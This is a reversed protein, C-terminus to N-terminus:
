QTTGTLFVQTAKGGYIRYLAFQRTNQHRLEFLLSARNTADADVVDVMRLRPTRDLHTEDTLSRLLPQMAGFTDPSAVVTVYRLREGTGDTHATLVYTPTSNYALDYAYFQEDQLPIATPKAPVVRKKTTRRNRSSTKGKSVSTSTSVFAASNELKMVASNPTASPNATQAALNPDALVAQAMAELQAKVKDRDADSDFAHTFDHEPRDVPDSVAIMQHMDKPVGKLAGIDEGTTVGNPRGRHLIPRNPDDLLASNKAAVEPTSASPPAPSDHRRFVPRDDDKTPDPPVETVGSVDRKKEEKRQDKRPDGTEVDERKFTPRDPDPSDPDRKAVDEKDKADPKSSFKPGKGGAEQVVHADGQTATATEIKPKKPAVYKGYGFWGDDYHGNTPSGPLHLNRAFSLDVFGKPAGAVQLQYRTDSGLALPVPQALYIAADEFHGYIFLSVPVLRSGEPKNIDGTWEYVGVARTVKQPERVQHM